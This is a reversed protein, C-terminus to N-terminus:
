NEARFPDCTTWSVELLKSYFLIAGRPPPPSPIGLVPCFGLSERGGAAALPGEIFHERVPPDKEKGVAVATLYEPCVFRHTGSVFEQSATCPVLNRDLQCVM